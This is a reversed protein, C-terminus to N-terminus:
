LLLPRMLTAEGRRERAQRQVLRARARLHVGPLRNAVGSKELVSSMFIFMPVAVLIPNKLIAVDSVRLGASVVALLPM